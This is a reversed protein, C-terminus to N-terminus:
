EAETWVYVANGVQDIYDVQDGLRVYALAGDFDWAFDYAFPIVVEGDLNIYGWKNAANRVPQLGEAFEAPGVDPTWVPEATLINGAADTLHCPSSPTNEVAMWLREHTIPYYREDMFPVIEGDVNVWATVADYRNDGSLWVEGYGCVFEYAWTFGRAIVRGETDIYGQDGEPFAVAAYGESFPYAGAFQAPIVIKGKRDAYGWLGDPSVVAIRGCSFDNAYESQYGEPLPITEGQENILHWPSIEFGDEDSLAVTTVGDNFSAPDVSYYQCPIVLEGTSCDAYGSLCTEDDVPILQSGSCWPWVTSWKLGSFTGTPIDFFGERYDEGTGGMVLWIGDDKGGYYYGDYGDDFAYHPELVFNGECDIVGEYDEEWSDDYSVGEPLVTVIAYDGRFEGAGDFQPAIVWEAQANIYGVRGNEGVAPYIEDEAFAMVPLFLFLMALWKKM